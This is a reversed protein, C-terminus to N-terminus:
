NLQKIQSKITKWTYILKQQQTLMYFFFQLCIIIADVDYWILQM